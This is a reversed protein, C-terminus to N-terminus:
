ETPLPKVRLEVLDAADNAYATNTPYTYTGDPKSFTNSATRPDAPDTQQIAGHDDYLYDQYLFEGGRYASTGSVLIPAASWVGTNTLQPAVVPGGYLIDPGPRPAPGGYLSGPGALVPRGALLIVLTSLVALRHSRM